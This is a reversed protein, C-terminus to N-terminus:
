GRIFNARDVTTQMAVQLRALMEERSLGDLEDSRIPEGVTVAIRAKPGALMLPSLTPLARSRPWVEFAGAVAVPVIVAKVKRILMTVGPKLRNLLGDHCREGEPFVLVVEGQELLKQVGSLGGRGFGASDISITGFAEMIFRLIRSKFLPLKALFYVRRSSALGLAIIDLYSTHNGILLVPGHRPIRARREIRFQFLFIYLGGLAWFLFDYLRNMLFPM